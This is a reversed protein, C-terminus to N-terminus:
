ENLPASNDPDPMREDFRIKRWILPVIIVLVGNIVLSTELGFEGGSLWVPGHIETQFPTFPLHLGSVTCGMLCGLGFNWGAHLGMAAKISHYRLMVAALLWSFLIGSIVIRIKDGTNGEINSIHILGFFLGSLTIGAAWNGARRSWECCLLGRYLIEEYFGVYLMLMAYGLLSATLEQILLRGPWATIRGFGLLVYGLPLATAAIIGWISGYFFRLWSEELFFFRRPRDRTAIKTIWGALPMGILLLFLGTWALYRHNPFELLFNRIEALGRINGELLWGAISAVSLLLQFLIMLLLVKLLVFVPNKNPM